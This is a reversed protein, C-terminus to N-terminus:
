PHADPLKPSPKLKTSVKLFPFKGAVLTYLAVGASWVDSTAGQYIDGMLVQPSLSSNDYALLRYYGSALPWDRFGQQRRTKRGPICVDFGFLDLHRPSSTCSYLAAGTCPLQISAELVGGGQKEHLYMRESQM